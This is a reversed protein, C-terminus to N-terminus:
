QNVNTSQAYFRLQLNKLGTNDYNWFYDQLRDDFISVRIPATLTDGDDDYLVTLFGKSVNDFSSKGKNRVFATSDLSCVEVSITENVDPTNPDDADAPISMACTTAKSKGGPKGKPAAYVSYSTVGDGDPDPNPLQFSAPSNDTCNGDLVNFDGPSLNIKCVGDLPVFIRGGGAFDGQKPTKSGIINLNKHPGSPAGNGTTQTSSNTTPTAPAPKEARSQILYVAGVIAVIFVFVSPVLLHAIGRNDLKKM